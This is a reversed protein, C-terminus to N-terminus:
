LRSGSCHSAPLATLSYLLSVCFFGEVAGETPDARHHQVPDGTCEGTSLQSPSVGATSVALCPQVPPHHKHSGSTQTGGPEPSLWALLSRLACLWLCLSCRLCHNYIVWDGEWVYCKYSLGPNKYINLGYKLQKHRVDTKILRYDNRQERGVGSGALKLQSSQTCIHKRVEARVALM